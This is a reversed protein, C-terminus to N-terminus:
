PGGVEIATDSQAAGALPGLRRDGETLRQPVVWLMEIGVEHEGVQEELRSVLGVRQGQEILGLAEARAFRAELGQAATCLRSLRFPIPKSTQKPHAEIV